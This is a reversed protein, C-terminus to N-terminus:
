KKGGRKKSKKIKTLFKMAAKKGVKTYPFKRGMIDPM